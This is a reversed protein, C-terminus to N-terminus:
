LTQPLSDSTNRNALDVTLGCESKLAENYSPPSPVSQTIMDYPPPLSVISPLSAVPNFPEM